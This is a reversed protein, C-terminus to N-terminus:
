FSVEDDATGDYAALPERVARGRRSERLIDDGLWKEVEDWGGLANVEEGVRALKDATEARRDWDGRLRWVAMRILHGYLGARTCRRLQLSVGNCHIGGGIAIHLSGCRAKLGRKNRM